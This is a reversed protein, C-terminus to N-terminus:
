VYRWNTYSTDGGYDCGRYEKTFGDIAESAGISRDAGSINDLVFHLCIGGVEASYHHEGKSLPSKKEYDSAAAKITSVTSAHGSPWSQGSSYCGASVLKLLSFSMLATTTSSIHM